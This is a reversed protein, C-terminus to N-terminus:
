WSGAMAAAFVFQSIWWVKVLTLGKIPIGWEGKKAHNVMGQFSHHLRRFFTGNELDVRTRKWLASNPPTEVRAQPGHGDGNGNAIGLGIGQSANGEIPEYGVM